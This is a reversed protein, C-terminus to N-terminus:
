AGRTEGARLLERARSVRDRHELAVLGAAPQQAEADRVELDLLGDDLPPERLHRGLADLEAEADVDADVDIRRLKRRLEVRDHERDARADRAVQRHRSALEAAHM